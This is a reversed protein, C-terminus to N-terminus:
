ASPRPARCRPLGPSSSSARADAMAFCRRCSASPVPSTWWSRRWGARAERGPSVEDAAAAAGAGVRPGHRADRAPPARPRDAGYRRGRHSVPAPARADRQPGRASRRDVAHRVARRRGASRADAPSRAPRNDDATADLEDGASRALRAGRGARTGRSKGARRPGAAPRRRPPSDLVDAISHAPDTSLLLVSRDPADHALRIALAAAVTTKGVGGKGGVFVLEADQVADIPRPPSTPRPRRGFTRKGDQPGPAECRRASSRAARDSPPRVSAAGEPGRPETLAAPLSAFRGARGSPGDITQVVRREDARRPDCTPCADADDTVPIVRNIVIESVPIGPPDAGRHWGRKRRRRATGAADGLPVVHPARRAPARSAERAQQAILAILRDAAEPRASARSSSASSATSRRCRTSCRPPPRSPRPRRWCGCRTGPRRPTSSSRTTALQALRASRWCAWWSTSAPCRCGWCRRSTRARRAVDRTRAVDALAQRHEGLWRALARAADLEVAHSGARRSAGPGRPLASTRLADGLSHAPDTSVLSYTARWGGSRCRARRPARRRASAARAASSSSGPRSIGESGLDDIEVGTVKDDPSMSIAGPKRGKIERIRALVDREIEAFEDDTIEGLELQMQAELLQERLSSDDHM